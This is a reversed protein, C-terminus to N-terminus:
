SDDPSSSGHWRSCSGLGCLGVAKVECSRGSENKVRCMERLRFDISLRARYDKRWPRLGPGPENRRPLDAPPDVWIAARLRQDRERLSGWQSPQQNAITSCLAPCPASFRCNIRPNRRARKWRPSTRHGFPPHRACGPRSGTCFWGGSKQRFHV